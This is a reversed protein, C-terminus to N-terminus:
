ATQLEIRIELGTPQRLHASVSGGSSEVGNKVISLGLGTGGTDRTRSVDVRYFPEFLRPLSEDPVGPGEDSISVTTTGNRRTVLVTIPSGPAHLLANRFVNSLARRLADSRARVELGEPAELRLQHSPVGELQAAEEILPRLLCSQLPADAQGIASKSFSLLENVLSSMERLDERVGQIRETNEAGVRQELISLGMEMRAVPSCLEHAIDGLFRRQGRVLGDLQVAMQNVAHALRGLEDTREEPVRVDFNGKAIAETARMSERVTRTIGRVFPLWLLASIAFAGFIGFLWPTLNIFLGNGTMSTTVIILFLPGERREWSSPHPLRIVAYYRAPSGARRLFTGLRFPPASATAEDGPPPPPPRDGLLSLDGYLLEELADPPPPHPRDDEEHPPRQGPPRMPRLAEQVEQPLQIQPGAIVREPLAILVTEAGHKQGFKQLVDSWQERSYANLQEYMQQGIAQLRDNAIGGLANHLGDRFQWQVVAFFLVALIILNLLFWLLIRIYLPLKM